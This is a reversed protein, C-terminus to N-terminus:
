SAYHTLVTNLAKIQGLLRSSQDRAQLYEPELVRKLEPNSHYLRMYEESEGVSALLDVKYQKLQEEIIKFTNSQILPPKDPDFAKLKSARVKFHSKFFKPTKSYTSERVNNAEKKQFLGLRLFRLIQRYVIQRAKVLGISKNLEAMYSNRFQSVTFDNFSDIKLVSYIHENISISNHSM